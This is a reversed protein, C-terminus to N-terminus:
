YKSHRNSIVREIDMLELNLYQRLPNDGVDEAMEMFLRTDEYLANLERDAIIPAGNIGSHNLKDRLIGYQTKM